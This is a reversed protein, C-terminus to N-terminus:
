HPSRIFNSRLDLRRQLVVKQAPRHGLICGREWPASSPQLQHMELINELSTPLYLLPLLKNGGTSLHHPGPIRVNLETLEEGM